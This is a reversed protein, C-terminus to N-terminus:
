SNIVCALLSVLIAVISSLYIWMFHGFTNKTAVLNRLKDKQEELRDANGTKQSIESDFIIRFDLPFKESPSGAGEKTSAKTIIDDLNDMNIQTILFNYSFQTSDMGDFVKSKVIDNMLGTLGWLHIYQYGLTNEFVTVLNTNTGIGFMTIAVIVFAALTNWFVYLADKKSMKDIKAEKDKMIMTRYFLLNAIYGMATVLAFLILGRYWTTKKYFCFTYVLALPVPFVIVIIFLVLWVQSLSIKGNPHLIDSVNKDMNDSKKTIADTM